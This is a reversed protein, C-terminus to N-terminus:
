RSGKLQSWLGRPKLLLLPSSFEDTWVPRTAGTGDAQALLNVECRSGTPPGPPRAVVWVSPATGLSSREGRRVSRDWGLHLANATVVRDVEFYRNSTHFAIHGGPALQRQAAQFAELTLL